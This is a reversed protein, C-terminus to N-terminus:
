FLGSDLAKQRDAIGALIIDRACDRALSDQVGPHGDYWVANGNAAETDLFAKPDASERNGNWRGNVLLGPGFRFYVKAAGRFEGTAADRVSLHFARGRTVSIVHQLQSTDTILVPM